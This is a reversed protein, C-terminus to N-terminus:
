MISEGMDPLRPITAVIMKPIGSFPVVESYFIGIHNATMEMSVQTKALWGPTPISGNMM